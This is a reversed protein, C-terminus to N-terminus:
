KVIFVTRLKEEGNGLTLIYTGSEYDSVDITILKGSSGTKRLIIRGSLDYVSLNTYSPDPGEIYLLDEAPNPYIKLNPSIRGKVGTNDAVVIFFSTRTSNAGDSVTVTIRALGSQDTGPTFSLSATGGPQVTGINLGTILASNDTEVRLTLNATGGSGDDIGSLNITQEPDNMILYLDAVANIKLVALETAYFTTVSRPPLIFVDGTISDVEECKENETTRFAKFGSPINNGYLRASKALLSKNIVVVTFTKNEPHEFASVMVDQNNTATRIRLAGPRIFKFYNKSTYFSNTPQNRSLQMDGFSWNTWLSVNGAWLSGHIAGALDLANNFAGGEIYTETMWLEKAGAGSQTQTWLNGWGSYDPFGSTIGDSAYGHVAIIDCYKEAEPHAILSDIYTKMSSLSQGFVQEPMYLRTTIGEKEFRKGVVEILKPFDSPDLIASPYPECFAPENQLGIAEIHIGAEEEFMKIVAVMSEAYEEYYNYDLYNSKETTSGLAQPIYWDTSLNHKMWAPPSWSTLIFTEVGKEKLKRFYNWDFANYNLGDRNLVYPDDNDNVPEIQNGILGIRMASAGLDDAYLDIWRSENQFAGFGLVKQYTMSRDLTLIATSAIDKKLVNIDFKSTKDTSGDCSVTVTIPAIGDQDGIYYTIDVTGDSQVTGVTPNAVVQPLTSVATVTVGSTNGAGDSIGSLTLIVEGEGTYHVQEPIGNITAIPTKPQIVAQDGIRINRYYVTGSYDTFPWSGPRNHLNFLIDKIRDAQIPTGAETYMDGPDSYDFSLTVWQNAAAPFMHSSSNQINREMDVDYFYNWHYTVDNVSYVEYSIYPYDTLDLEYPLDMWLGGYDWKDTMEIKIARFGVSDVYSLNFLQGEGQLLDSANGEFPVVYGTMPSLRTEIQFSIVTSDNGNNEATGGDDIITLTINSIGTYLPNPTFTLTANDGGSYNIQLPNAVISDISSIAKLTLAQSGNDGDSIGTLSVTQEGANNFVAIKSVADITPPNNINGYVKVSFNTSVSDLGGNNDKVTVNVNVTGTDAPILTIYGYPSGQQYAVSVPNPIVNINDSVAEITLQQEASPDGDSLGALRVINESGVATIVDDPTDVEPPFNGAVTVIFHVSNDQFNGEGVAILKITDSGTSNDMIDFDLTATGNVIDSVSANEILGSGTTFNIESANAIDTILISKNGSNMYYTKDGPNALYASKVADSGIRLNDLRINGDFTLALPNVAFRVERVHELDVRTETAYDFMAFVFDAAKMVRIERSSAMNNIDVLQIMLIFPQDGKLEVNVYPLISFDFVGPLMCSFYENGSNKHVNVALEGGTRELTYDPNAQDWLTDMQMNEFDDTFSTSGYEAVIVNFNMTTTNEIEGDDMVTVTLTSTGVKDEAPTFQLVATDDPSTYLITLDKLLSTDSSEAEITINQDGDGGDTIGTLKISQQGQGKFVLRNDVQDITPLKLLPKAAEGLMFDNFYLSGALDGYGVDFQIEDLTTNFTSIEATLNFYYQQYETELNITKEVTNGNQDKIRIILSGAASAKATFKFFPNPMINFPRIWLQIFSWDTKNYEIKLEGNSITKTFVDTPQALIFAWTGNAGSPNSFDTSFSTSQGFVSNTFFLMLAILLLLFKNEM